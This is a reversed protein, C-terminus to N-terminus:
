LQISRTTAEYTVQWDIDPCTITHTNMPTIGPNNYTSHILTQHKYRVHDQVMMYSLVYRYVTALMVLGINPGRCHGTPNEWSGPVLNSASAIM